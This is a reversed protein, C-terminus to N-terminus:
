FVKIVYYLVIDEEQMSWSDTNHDHYTEIPIHKKCLHDSFKVLNKKYITLM